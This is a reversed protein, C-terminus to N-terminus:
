ESITRAPVVKRELRRAPKEIYINNGDLLCARGMVLRESMM